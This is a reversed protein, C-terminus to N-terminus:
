PVDNQRPTVECLEFLQRDPTLLFAFRRWAAHDVQFRRFPLCRARRLGRIAEDLDNVAYCIHYAGAGARKLVGKVPSEETLGEVLEIMAGGPVRLFCVRVNEPFVEVARGVREFGFVGEYYELACDISEVAVGVHHFTMGLRRGLPVGEAAAPADDLTAM